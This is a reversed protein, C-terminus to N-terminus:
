CQIAEVFALPDADADEAALVSYYRRRCEFEAVRHGEHEGVTVEHGAIRRREGDVGYEFGDRSVRVRVSEAQDPDAHDFPAPEYWGMAVTRDSKQVLNVTQLRHDGVAEPLGTRFGLWAEAQVVSELSVVIGQADEFERADEPPEYEFVREDVPGFSVDEYEVNVELPGGGGSAVVPDDEAVLRQRLPYAHEDDVWLEVRTPTVPVADTDPGIRYGYYEIEPVGATSGPTFVLRHTERGAVTEIGEREVSYADLDELIAEHDFPYLGFHEIQFDLRAYIDGERLYLLTEGDAAVLVYGGSRTAEDVDTRIRDGDVWVDGRRSIERDVGTRQVALTGARAVPRDRRDQLREVVETGESGGPRGVCGAGVSLGALGLLVRRRSLSPM